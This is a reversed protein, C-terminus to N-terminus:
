SGSEDTKVATLFAMWAHGDFALPDTDPHQSDRVAYHGAALEAVEVCNSTATSYSSKRWHPEAM